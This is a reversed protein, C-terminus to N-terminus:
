IFQSPNLNSLSIKPPFKLLVDVFIFCYLAKSSACIECSWCHDVWPLRVLWLGVRRGALANNSTFRLCVDNIFKVCGLSLHSSNPVQRPCMHLLSGPFNATSVFLIKFCYKKFIFVYAFFGYHTCSWFNLYLILLLYKEWQRAGIHSVPSYFKLIELLYPCKQFVIVIVDDCRFIIVSILDDLLWDNNM